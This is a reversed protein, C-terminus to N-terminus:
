VLFEIVTATSFFKSKRPEMQVGLEGLPAEYSRDVAQRFSENCGRGRVVRVSAPGARAPAYGAKLDEQTQIEQVM